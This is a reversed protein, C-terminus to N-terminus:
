GHSASFQEQHLNVIKLIEGFFGKPPFHSPFLLARSVKIDKRQVQIKLRPIGAITSHM